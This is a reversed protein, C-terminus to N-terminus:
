DLSELINQTEISSSFHGQLETNIKHHAYFQHNALLERTRLLLLFIFVESAFAVFRDFVFLQILSVM